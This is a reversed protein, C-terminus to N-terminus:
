QTNRRWTDVFGDEAAYAEDELARTMSNIKGEAYQRVHVNEHALTRVLTEADQFAAPGLQVGLADTRAIAGQFDLYSITDADDLIEIKAGRLDIGALQAYHEITDMDRTLGINGELVERNTLAGGRSYLATPGSRGLFKTRAAQVWTRIKEVLPKLRQVLPRVVDAVIKAAKAALEAIITAIRRAKTTIRAVLAVNGVWESLTATVPALIAFATEAAVTEIAIDKLEDLIKSHAEDLHHAYEGCADGLAQCVDALANLDSQRTNCTQIGIEIEPSQQNALLGVASPVAGAVTRFDSSATHWAAKAGNLQDQHGNPWAWGVLDKILSWGFPEPIGDGAASPATEPLCPDSLLSPMPPAPLERLDAAAEAVQHNYASVVILDRTQGCATALTSSTSIALQAAEDYGAAWETGVSDSGAMGKYATLVAVLASHTTVTDTSMQGFVEGASTYEEARHVILPVTPTTM